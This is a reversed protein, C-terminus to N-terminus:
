WERLVSVGCVFACVGGGGREEGGAPRGLGVQDFVFVSERGEGCAGEAADALLQRVHLNARQGCPNQELKIHLKRQPLIALPDQRLRLVM